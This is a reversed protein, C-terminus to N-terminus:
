ALVSIIELAIPRGEWDEVQAHGIDGGFRSQLTPPSSWFLHPHMPTFIWNHLLFSQTLLVNEKTSRQTCGLTDSASQASLNSNICVIITIRIIIQQPAGAWCKVNTLFCRKFATISPQVLMVESRKWLIQQEVTPYDYIAVEQLSRQFEKKNMCSTPSSDQMDRFNTM